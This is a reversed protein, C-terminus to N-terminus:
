TFRGEPPDMTIVVKMAGLGETESIQRDTPLLTIGPESLFKEPQRSIFRIEEQRTIAWFSEIEPVVCWHIPSKARLERWIEYPPGNAGYYNPDLLELGTTMSM